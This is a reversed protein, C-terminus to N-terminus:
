DRSGVLSENRRDIEAALERISDAITVEYSVAPDLSRLAPPLRSLNTPVQFGRALADRVTGLVCYDTALGGVFLRQVGARNLRAAFDKDDFASYADLASSTAKSAIQVTDPLRLEDPFAAGRTDQFCHPPWPGGRTRFSAHDAPHWDRTAFEPLSRAEFWALYRNLKPVVEDGGPVPLAGGPLFDRQVDVIVLADRCDHPM